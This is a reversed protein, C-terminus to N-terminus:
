DGRAIAVAVKANELAIDRWPRDSWEQGDDRRWLIGEQADTYYAVTDLSDFCALDRWVTLDSPSWGAGLYHLWGAGALQRVLICTEVIGNSEMAALGPNSIAVFEPRWPAYYQAQCLASYVDIRKLKPFQIVPVVPLKVYEQWWEWNRMTLEPELFVDPAICHYGSQNIYPKYYLALRQMHGIGIRQGRQSLGFAGSDLIVLGDDPPPEPEIPFAYLRSLVKMEQPMGDFHTCIFKM